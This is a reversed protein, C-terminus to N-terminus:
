DKRATVMFSDFFERTIDHKDVHPGEAALYYVRGAARYVRVVRVAGKRPLQIVWERGPYQDLHRVKRPQGRLTGGSAAVLDATAADFWADGNGKGPQDDQGSGVVCVFTQTFQKRSAAYCTLSVGKLPHEVTPPGPEGPLKAEYTPDAPNVEHWEQGTGFWEQARAAMKEKLFYLSLGAFYALGVMMLVGKLRTAPTWDVTGVVALCLVSASVALAAPAAVSLMPEQGVVLPAVLWLLPIAFPLLALGIM